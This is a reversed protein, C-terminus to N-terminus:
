IFVPPPTQLSLSWGREAMTGAVSALDLTASGLALLSLQPSGLISLGPIARIGEALADTTQLCRRTLDLYGAEGLFNMVAWAAAIPGGPRTGSLNPAWYHAGPWDDFTFSQFRYIDASKYLVLSAGKAAYGYKHLDASMSTVGEISFDFDPVTRGLRRAFPLLFAGVCSDVHFLIGKETAIAALQAIPDIIGHPYSPASGVMLITNVTVAAAMAAPNARFDADVDVRTARVGLYHAAKNFAPHATRPLVIEPMIDPSRTLAFDRATKVALFISESGGSTMNGNASPAQLLDAAMAVVDSEMKQLSPFARPSLANDSFSTLYASQLLDLLEPDSYYVYAWAKGSRWDVDTRQMSRISALVEASSKGQSSLKM